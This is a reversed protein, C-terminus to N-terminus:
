RVINSQERPAALARPPLPSARACVPDVHQVADLARQLARERGVPTHHPHQDAVPGGPERPVHAAERLPRRVKPEHDLVQHLLCLPLARTFGRVGRLLEEQEWGFRPYSGRFHGRYRPLEMLYAVSSSSKVRGAHSPGTGDPRSATDTNPFYRLRTRGSA